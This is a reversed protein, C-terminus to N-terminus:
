ENNDGSEVKEVLKSVNKIENEIKANLEVKINLGFYKNIQQCALQRCEIEEDVNLEIVQNNANTESEILREKKEINVTNIGLFMLLESWIAQKQAQLKDVLFPAGTDITRIDAPNLANKDAFIVPENGDYQQYCNLMALRQKQTCTIAMPTKQQNMNVDLTRETNYLRRAFLQITPFTPILDYNNQIVVVGSKDPIDDNLGSYVARTTREGELAHSYCQCYRPLDYINLRGFPTIRTVINGFTPSYVVGAMGHYYLLNELFGKNWTDPINSWKFRANALKKIRFLYDNYTANNSIASLEFKHKM